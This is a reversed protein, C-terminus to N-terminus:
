KPMKLSNLKLRLNLENKFIVIAFSVEIEKKKIEVLNVFHSQSDLFNFKIYYFM